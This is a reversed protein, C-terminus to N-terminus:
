TIWPKLLQFPVMVCTASHLCLVRYNPTSTHWWSLGTRYRLCKPIISSLKCASLHLPMRCETVMLPVIMIQSWKQIAKIRWDEWQCCFCQKMLMNCDNCYQHPGYIIVTDITENVCDSVGWSETMKISFKLVSPQMTKKDVATPASMNWTSAWIVACVAESCVVSLRNKCCRIPFITPNYTSIGEIGEGGSGGWNESDVNITNRKLLM